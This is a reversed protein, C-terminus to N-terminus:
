YFGHFLYSLRWCSLFCNFYFTMYSFRVWRKDFMGIKLSKSKPYGNVLDFAPIRPMDPLDDVFMKLKAPDLLGVDAWSTGLLLFLALCTLHFHPLTFRQMQTM